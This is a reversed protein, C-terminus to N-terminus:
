RLPTVTFDVSLDRPWDKPNSPHCKYTYKSDLYTVLSKNTANFLIQAFKLKNCPLAYFIQVIFTWSKMHRCYKACLKAFENRLKPSNANSQVIENTQKPRNQSISRWPKSNRSKTTSWRWGSTGWWSLSVSFFFNPLILACTNNKLYAHLAFHCYSHSTM